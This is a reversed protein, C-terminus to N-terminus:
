GCRKMARISQSIGEARAVSGPAAETTVHASSKTCRRPANAIAAASANVLVLFRPAVDEVRCPLLAISGYHELAGLVTSIPTRGVELRIRTGRPIAATTSVGSCLRWVRLDRIPYVYGDSGNALCHHSISLGPVEALITRNVLKQGNLRAWSSVPWSAGYLNGRSALDALVEYEIDRQATRFLRTAFRTPIPRPLLAEVFLADTRQRAVRGRRQPIAESAKKSSM